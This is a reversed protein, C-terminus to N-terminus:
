CTMSINRRDSGFPTGAVAEVPEGAMEDLDKGFYSLKAGCLHFHAGIPRNHRNGALLRSFSM